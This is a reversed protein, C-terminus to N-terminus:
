VNSTTSRPLPKFFRRRGDAGLVLENLEDRRGIWDASDVLLDADGARVRVSHEPLIPELESHVVDVRPGIFAIRYSIVIGHVAQIARQHAFYLEHSM